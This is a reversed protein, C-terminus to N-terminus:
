VEEPCLNGLDIDNVIHVMNTPIDGLRIIRLVANPTSLPYYSGYPFVQHRRQRLVGVNVLFADCFIYKSNVIGVRINGSAQELDETTIDVVTSSTIQHGLNDFFPAEMYMAQVGGFGTNHRRTSMLEGYLIRVNDESNNIDPTYLVYETEAIDDIVEFYFEYMGPEKIIIGQYYTIDDVDIVKWLDFVDGKTYDASTYFKVYYVSTTDGAGNGKPIVYQPVKNILQAFSFERKCEGTAGTDGTSGTNGTAGTPGKCCEIKLGCGCYEHDSGDYCCREEM